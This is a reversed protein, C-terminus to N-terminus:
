EASSPDPKTKQTKYTFQVRSATKRENKIASLEAGRDVSLSRFAGDTDTADSSTSVIHHEMAPDVASAEVGFGPIIRPVLAGPRILPSCLVPESFTKCLPLDTSTQTTRRRRMFGCVVATLTTFYQSQLLVAFWYGSKKIVNAKLVAGEKITFTHINETLTRSISLGTSNSLHLDAAQKGCLLENM